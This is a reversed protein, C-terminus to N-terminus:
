AKGAQLFGTVTGVVDHRDIWPWHGGHPVEVLAANGLLKEFGRGLEAGLYPDRLGWVVLAPGRLDGLGRGAAALRNPDASRYLELTPRGTGRQRHRWIEDVFEKPMPGRDGSAQRLVREVAPRNATLNFLEGAVRRRWIRAVWHWRYGEFLPVANIVVLRRVRSPDRQAAILAVSGWDHVVLNHEGVGAAELFREVHTALGDMTYDFGGPRESRGWGPVDPAIAPGDLQEMFGVWDSSSTPNGHVFVTPVGDGETRRYFTAVGDVDISSEEIRAMRPPLM